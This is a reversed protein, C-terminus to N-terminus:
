DYGKKSCVEIWIAKAKQVRVWDANKSILGIGGMRVGDPETASGPTILIARM